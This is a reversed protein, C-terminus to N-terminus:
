VIVVEGEFLAWGWLGLVAALLFLAIIAIVKRAAVGRGFGAPESSTMSESANM